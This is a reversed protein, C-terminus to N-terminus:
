SIGVAVRRGKYLEEGTEYGDQLYEIVCRPRPARSGHTDGNGSIAATAKM